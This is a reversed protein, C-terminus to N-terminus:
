FFEVEALAVECFHRLRDRVYLGQLGQQHRSVLYGTETFLEAVEVIQLVQVDASVEDNRVFGM